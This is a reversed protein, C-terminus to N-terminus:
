TKPDEPMPRPGRWMSLYIRFFSPRPESFDVHHHLHVWPVDPHQHHAKHHHYNLFLWQVVKNVRLNWAGEKVDLESWAHDAYQLSSWNLAFAAYCIAFSEKLAARRAVVRSMDVEAVTTVHAATRRSRTMHEAIQRRMPTLPTRREGNAPQPEPRYPSESHLPRDHAKVHALVDKVTWQPCAPVRADAPGAAALETIRARGQEYLESVNTM